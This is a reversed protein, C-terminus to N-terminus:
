STGHAARNLKMVRSAPLQIVADLLLVEQQLRFALSNRTLSRGGAILALLRVADRICEDKLYEARPGADDFRAKRLADLRARLLGIVEPGGESGDASPAPRSALIRDCEDLAAQAMGLDPSAYASPPGKPPSDASRRSIIQADDIAWADLSIDVTSSGQLCGLDIPRISARGRDRPVGPSPFDTLAFIVETGHRLGIVLSEFFGYGSVWPLTGSITLGGGSRPVATLRPRQPKALHTTALGVLRRGSRIDRWLEANRTKWDLSRSLREVAALHQWLTFGLAASVAFVAELQPNTLPLDTEPTPLGLEIIGHLATRLADPNESIARASDAGITRLHDDVDKPAAQHAQQTQSMIAAAFANLKRRSIKMRRCLSQALLLHRFSAAGIPGFNHVYSALWSIQEEHVQAAPKNQLYDEFTIGSHDLFFGPKITGCLSRYEATEIILAHWLDDMLGDGPFFVTSPSSAGLQLFRVVEELAVSVEAKPHKSFKSFLREVQAPPILRRYTSCGPM